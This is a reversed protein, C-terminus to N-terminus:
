RTGAALTECLTGYGSKTVVLDVSAVLDVFDMSTDAFDFIDGREPPANAQVWCVGELYPLEAIASGPLGGFGVVVLTTGEPVGLRRHLTQRHATGTRCVPPISRINPLETMPTHPRPQLFLDAAAYAERIERVIRAAGRQEVCYARYADLWNLSCLAIAPLAIRSAAAISTYPVDALLLDAELATLREAERALLFPFDDHLAAYATASATVDVDMPGTMVLGVDAPPPLVPLMQGVHRALVAPPVATRLTVRVEPVTALLDRVVPLVQGAHGLGHGSIDVVVHPM